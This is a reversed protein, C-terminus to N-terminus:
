RKDSIEKEVINKFIYEHKFKEIEDTLEPWNIPRHVGDNGFKRDYKTYHLQELMLGLAPAQPV